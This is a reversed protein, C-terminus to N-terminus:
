EEQLEWCLYWWDPQGIGIKKAEYVCLENAASWAMALQLGEFTQYVPTQSFAIMEDFGGKFDPDGIASAISSCVARFQACAANFDDHTHDEAYEWEAGNWIRLFGTKEEPPETFTAHAPLLFNGPKLPNEQVTESNTFVQTEPDYNYALM